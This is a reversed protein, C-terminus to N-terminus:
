DFTWIIIIFPMHHCMVHFSCLSLVKPIFSPLDYMKTSHPQPSPFFSVWSSLTNSSFCSLHVPNSPISIFPSCLCLLLFDCPMNLFSDLTWNWHLIVYYTSSLLPLISLKFDISGQFNYGNTILIVMSSWFGGWICQSTCCYSPKKQQQKIKTKNTKQKQWVWQKAPQSCGPQDLITKAPHSPSPDMGQINMNPDRTMPCCSGPPLEEQPSPLFM